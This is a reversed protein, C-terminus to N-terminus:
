LLERLNDVPKDVKAEAVESHKEYLECIQVTTQQYCAFSPNHREKPRETAEFPRLDDGSSM